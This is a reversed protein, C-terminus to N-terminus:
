APGVEELDYGLARALKPAVAAIRVTGLVGVLSVLAAVMESEGVGRSMVDSVSRAISPTPADAALLAGLQILARTRPDLSHVSGSPLRVSPVEDGSALVGLVLPTSEM